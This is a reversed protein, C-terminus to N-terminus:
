EKKMKNYTNIYSDLDLQIYELNDIFSRLKEKTSLIMRFLAAINLCYMVIMSAVISIFVIIVITDPLNSINVFYPIIISIVPIIFTGFASKILNLFKEWGTPSDLREKGKQILWEIHRKDLLQYKELFKLDRDLNYKAANLDTEFGNEIDMKRIIVAFSICEIIIVISMWLAYYFWYCIYTIIFILFCLFFTRMDKDKSLIKLIDLKIMPRQKIFRKYENFYVKFM